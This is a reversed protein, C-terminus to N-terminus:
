GRGEPPVVPISCVVFHSVESPANEGLPVVLRLWYDVSGGAPPMHRTFVPVKKTESLLYVARFLGGIMSPLEDVQRGTMDSGYARALGKGFSQYRLAKEEKAVIAVYDAIEDMFVPSVDARGPLGERLRQAAWWHHRLRRQRVDILDKEGPDVVVDIPQDLGDQVFRDVFRAM